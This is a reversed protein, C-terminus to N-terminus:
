QKSARHSRRTRRELLEYDLQEHHKNGVLEIIYRNVSDRRYYVRGGNGAYLVWLKPQTHPIHHKGNTKGDQLLRFQNYFVLCDVEHMEGLRVLARDSFILAPFFYSFKKRTVTVDKPPTKKGHGVREEEIAAREDLELVISIEEPNLDLFHHGKNVRRAIDSLSPFLLDFKARLEPDAHPSQKPRLQPPLKAGTKTKTEEPEAVGSISESSSGQGASVGLIYTIFAVAGGVLWEIM